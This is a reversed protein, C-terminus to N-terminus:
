LHRDAVSSAAFSHPKTKAVYGHGTVMGVVETIMDRTQGDEGVDVHIELDFKDKKVVSRLTPVIEKAVDLSHTVEQYIKQRLSYSRPLYNRSYFFIGGRGVRLVVIASILETEKIGSNFRDESDSGIILKYKSSSDEAFFQVIREIIQASSKYKKTTSQFQRKM